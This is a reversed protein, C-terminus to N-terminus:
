VRVKAPTNPMARVVTSQEHLLQQMSKIRLGACISCVLKGRLADKIGEEELVDKVMQPKCALIVVDARKIAKLNDNALIEIQDLSDKFTQKLRKASEMWAIFQSPLQIQQEESEEGSTGNKSDDIELLSAISASLDNNSSSLAASAAKKAETAKKSDLVGSLIAIGMTGCGIIALTYGSKGNEQEHGNLQAGNSHSSSQSFSM